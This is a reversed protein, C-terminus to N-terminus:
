PTAAPKEKYHVEKVIEVAIEKQRQKDPPWGLVNAHNPDDILPAAAVRLRQGLFVAVRADARGHLLSARKNAVTQGIKWIDAEELDIHRTVSLEVRKYPIFPDPKVTGDPRVHDRRLIYRALWEDETVPLKGVAATV